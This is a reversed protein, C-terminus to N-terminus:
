ESGSRAIASTVIGAISGIASGVAEAVAIIGDKASAQDGPVVLEQEARFWDVEPSGLPSGREEWFYYAKLRIVEQHDPNTLTPEVFPRKM